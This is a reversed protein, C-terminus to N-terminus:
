QTTQAQHDNSTFLPDTNYGHTFLGTLLMNTQAILVAATHATPRSLADVINNEGKKYTILYHFNSELYELWCIQRPNLTLQARLFQRSKHDTRVTVDAGSLYCCWTKFANVIALMEKDHIPYNREAGQLKQSDYAIPQLGEGFDQLLVAGVIIDSAHTVLEYPRDLDDIRLVPPTMLFTKLQDFAAQYREGWEYFVGKQLLNTLPATSEAMKTVTYLPARLQRVGYCEAFGQHEYAAGLQSYHRHIQHYGECLDIKSFIRAGRLQDILDDARPILYRSKITINNLARYNTCMRLGGDKKPTFIIPTAYPLTSPCIIKKEMFYDVQTRLEMLEPQSLRWQSRVIPQAGPELEIKHDHPREPPLGPPLDVM